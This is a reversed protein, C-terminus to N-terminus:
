IKEGLSEANVWKNGWCNKILFSLPLLMDNENKM